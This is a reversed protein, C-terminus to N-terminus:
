TGAGRPSLKPVRQEGMQRGAEKICGMYTFKLVMADGTSRRFRM